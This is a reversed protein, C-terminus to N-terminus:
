DRLEQVRHTCCSNKIQTGSLKLATETDVKPHPRLVVAFCGREDSQVHVCHVPRHRVRAETLKVPPWREAEREDNTTPFHHRENKSLTLTAIASM